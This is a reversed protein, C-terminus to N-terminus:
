SGTTKRRGRDALRKMAQKILARDMEHVEFGAGIDKLLTVALTGGLHERFEELGLLVAPEGDGEEEDLEPAWLDFGLEEILRLIREAAEEALFGALHSYIVDLAIGIAVAEGHHIRFNSLQELKHAAWHGFDLPRASGMEFPDGSTAIHRVHAEACRYILDEVADPEFRRLREADAEIREFFNGDRILAVKIAEIYGARKERDPLSTLMDFDNIVAVPPSFTGVFNKKGFVNVGNKIGVGADNQSLVTTPIRVHRMGRHATAAAFGIADLLAGGGIAIVYSHRCMGYRDIASYIGNVADSTNKVTEGGAALLPPCVLRCDSRHAAFYRQISRALNPRSAVVNEDVAVLVDAVPMTTGAKLIDKLLPNAPEFVGRTFHVQHEFRIPISARIPAKM